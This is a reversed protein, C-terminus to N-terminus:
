QHVEGTKDGPGTDEDPSADCSDIWGMLNGTIKDLVRWDEESGHCFVWWAYPDRERGFEERAEEVAEKVPEVGILDAIHDVRRQAYTRMRWEYSGTQGMVREEWQISLSKRVWLKVLELLEQRTVAFDPIEKGGEGCIEDIFGITFGRGVQPMPGRNPTPDAADGGFPGLGENDVNPVLKRRYEM